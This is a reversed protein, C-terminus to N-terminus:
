RLRQAVAKAANPMGSIAGGNDAARLNLRIASGARFL